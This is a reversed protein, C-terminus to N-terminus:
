KKRQLQDLVHEKLGVGAEWLRAMGQGYYATLREDDLDLLVAAEKPDMRGSEIDAQIDDRIRQATRLRAVHQATHWDENIESLFPKTLYRVLYSEYGYEGQRVEIVQGVKDSVVVLDGVAARGRLRTKGIAPDSGELSRRLSQNVGAPTMGINEQCRVLLNIGIVVSVLLGAKLEDDGPLPESLGPRAHIGRSARGFGAGYSYGLAGQETATALPMAHRLRSGFASLIQGPALKAPDFPVQQKKRYWAMRPDLGAKELAAIESCLDDIQAQYNASESGYFERQDRQAAAVGDLQVLL